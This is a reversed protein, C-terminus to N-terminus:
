EWSIMLAHFCAYADATFGTGVCLLCIGRRIGQIKKAVRATVVAVAVVVLRRFIM